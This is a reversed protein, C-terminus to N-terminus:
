HLDHVVRLKEQPLQQYTPELWDILLSTSRLHQEPHLM